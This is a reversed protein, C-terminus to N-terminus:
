PFAVVLLEPDWAAASVSVEFVLTVSLFDVPQM